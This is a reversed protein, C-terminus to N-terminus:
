LTDLATYSQDRDRMQMLDAMNTAAAVDRAHLCSSVLYSLPKPLKGYKRFLKDQEPVPDPRLEQKNRVKLRSFLFILACGMRTMDGPKQGKEAVALDHMDSIVRTELSPEPLDIYYIDM